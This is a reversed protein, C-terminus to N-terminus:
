SRGAGNVLPGGHMRAKGSFGGADNATRHRKKGTLRPAIGAEKYPSLFETRRRDKKKKKKLVPPCPAPLRQNDVAITVEAPGAGRGFRMVPRSTHKNNKKEMATSVKITRNQLM